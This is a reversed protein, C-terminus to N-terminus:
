VRGEEEDLFARQGIQWSPEWPSTSAAFIFKVDDQQGTAIVQEQEIGAPFM